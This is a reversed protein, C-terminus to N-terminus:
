LYPKYAALHERLLGRALELNGKHLADLIEIHSHYLPQKQVFQQGDFGAIEAYRRFFIDLLQSFTLLIENGATKMLGYHFQFDRQTWEQATVGENDDVLIISKLEEYHKPTIKGCILDACALEIGLRAEVLGRLSQRSIAIQFALLRSLMSFNVQSLTTGRRTGSELIGLFKLGQLADRVCLRSVGLMESLEEESPLKDGIRLDHEVIHDLIANVVQKNKSKKPTM